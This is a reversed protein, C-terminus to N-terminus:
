CCCRALLVLIGCREGKAMWSNNPSLPAPFGIPDTVVLGVFLLLLLLLLVFLLLLLVLLLLLLSLFEGCLEGGAPM